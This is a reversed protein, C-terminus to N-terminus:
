GEDPFVREVAESYEDPIWSGFSDTAKCRPCQCKFVSVSVHLSGVWKHKCKLCMMFFNFWQGEDDLRDTIDIVKGM